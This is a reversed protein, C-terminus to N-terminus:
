ARGRVPVSVRARVRVRVRVRAFAASESDFENGGLDVAIGTTQLDRLCHQQLVANRTRTSHVYETLYLRDRDRRWRSSYAM